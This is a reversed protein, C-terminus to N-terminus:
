FGLRKIEDENEIKKLGSTSSRVPRPDDIETEDVEEIPMEAGLPEPEPRSRMVEQKTYSMEPRFQNLEPRPHVVEPRPHAVEPRPHAVEPRSQSEATEGFATLVHCPLFGTIASKLM